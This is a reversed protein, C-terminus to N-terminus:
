GACLKPNFFSRGTERIRDALTAPHLDLERAAALLTGFFLSLLGSLLFLEITLWFAKLVLDFRSFVADM